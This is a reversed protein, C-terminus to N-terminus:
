MNWTNPNEIVDKIEIRFKANRWILQQEQIFKLAHSKNHFIADPYRRLKTFVCYYLM